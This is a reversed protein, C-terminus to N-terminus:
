TMLKKSMSIGLSAVSASDARRCVCAAATIFPVVVDGSSVNNCPQEPKPAVFSRCPGGEASHREYNALLQKKETENFCMIVDSCTPVDRERQPVDGEQKAM